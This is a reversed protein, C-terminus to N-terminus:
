RNSPTSQATGPPKIAANPEIGTIFILQLDVAGLRHERAKQYAESEYWRDAAAMDPFELLVVGEIADGEVVKTKGYASLIKMEPTRARPAESHYREMAATDHTRKRLAIVYVPM